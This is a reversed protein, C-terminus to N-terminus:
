NFCYTMAALANMKGDCLQNLFMDEVHPDEYLAYVICM